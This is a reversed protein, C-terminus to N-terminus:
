KKNKKRMEFRSVKDAIYLNQISKAEVMQSWINEIFEVTLKPSLDRDVRLCESFFTIEHLMKRRRDM